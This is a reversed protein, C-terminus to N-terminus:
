FENELDLKKKHLAELEKLIIQRKGEDDNKLSLEKVEIELILINRELILSYLYKVKKEDLVEGYCGSGITYYNFGNKELTKKLFDKDGIKNTEYVSLLIDIIKDADDNLYNIDFVDINYDKFIKDILELNNILLSFINKEINKINDKLNELSNIPLTTKKYNIKTIDRYNLINKKGDFKSIMFLQKKYFDVFNKAVIPNKIQSTLIKLNAELKSKQEPTIYEKNYGNGGIDLELLESNWLFESLNKCNNKNKIFNLFGVKGSSRIFDDPDQGDPLFVFKINKIATLVPLVLVALRKSAKQGAMDGDLCVIIEDTIKWLDEIQQLTIATGMPAVVNEIGNISLGIADLNGEVLIANKEDYISKKAFFYNFLVNSKHYILTEPSNMYKPMKDKNLVRGSFAIVKGKKDLVPFMVRDRFKDYYRNEGSVILGAKEIQKETFNNKKLYELLKNNQPAYGIRFKKINDITLGRKTIYNLAIKGFNGFICDQFFGCSKENIEMITKIESTQNKEKEYNNKSTKPVELGYEEALVHLTEKFDLGDMQMLFNIVDGHAGCGFCHYVGKEDNVHFSPTKEKHFPCCAIKDRGNSQLKVRRGIIESIIVKSKLLDMFQRDSM